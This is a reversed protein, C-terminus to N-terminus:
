PLPRPRSRNRLGDSAPTMGPVRADGQRHGGLLQVAAQVIFWLMVPVLPVLMRTYASLLAQLGIGPILLIAFAAAEPHRRRTRLM